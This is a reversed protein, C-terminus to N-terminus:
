LFICQFHVREAKGKRLVGFFYIRWEEGVGSSSMGYLMELLGIFQGMEWDQLQLRSGM